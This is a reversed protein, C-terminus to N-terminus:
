KGFWPIQSQGRMPLKRLSSADGATDTCKYVAPRVIPYTRARWAVPLTTTSSRPSPQHCFRVISPPTRLHPTRRETPQSVWAMCFLSAPIHHWAPSHSSLFCPIPDRRRHRLSCRAMGGAPVYIWYWFLPNDARLCPDVNWGDFGSVEGSGPHLIGIFHMITAANMARVTVVPIAETPIAERALPAVVKSLAVAWEPGQSLAALLRPPHGMPPAPLQVLCPITM